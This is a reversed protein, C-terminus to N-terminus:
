KELKIGKITFIIIVMALLMATEIGSRDKVLNLIRFIIIFTAINMIFPTIRNGIFKITSVFWDNFFPDNEMNYKDLVKQTNKKAIREFDWFM